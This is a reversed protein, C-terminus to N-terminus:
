RRASMLLGLIRGVGNGDFNGWIEDADRLDYKDTLQADFEIHRRLAEEGDTAELFTDSLLFEESEECALALRVLYPFGAYFAAPAPSAKAPSTAM